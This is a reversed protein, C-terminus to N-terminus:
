TPGRFDPLGPAVDVGADATILLGDAQAILAVARAISTDTARM